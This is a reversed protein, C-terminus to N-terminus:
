YTLPEGTIGNYMIDKGEYNFGNKVLNSAAEEITDGSFPTGLKINGDFLGGKGIQLEMLKGVTM